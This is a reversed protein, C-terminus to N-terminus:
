ICSYNYVSVIKGTAPNAAAIENPTIEAIIQTIGFQGLFSSLDTALDAPNVLITACIEETTEDAESGAYQTNTLGIEVTLFVRFFPLKTINTYIIIGMDERFTIIISVSVTQEWQIPTLLAQCVHDATSMSNQHSVFGPTLAGETTHCFVSIQPFLLIM